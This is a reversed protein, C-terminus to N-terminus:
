PAEVTIRLSAKEAYRKVVHLWCIQSDDAFVIGNCADLGSKGINDIDGVNRGIPHIEGASARRRMKESWSAPPEIEIIVQVSVAGELPRRGRMAAMATLRCRSEYERTAAPTYAIGRATVRPRKKPVPRGPVIITVPELRGSAVPAPEPAELLMRM